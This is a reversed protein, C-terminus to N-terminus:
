FPASFLRIPRNHSNQKNTTTKPFTKREKLSGIRPTDKLDINVKVKAIIDAFINVDKYKIKVIVPKEENLFDTLNDISLTYHIDM